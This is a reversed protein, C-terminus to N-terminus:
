LLHVKILSCMIESRSSNLWDESRLKRNRMTQHRCFQTIPRIESMYTAGVWIARQRMWRTIRIGVAVVIIRITFLYITVFLLLLSLSKPFFSHCVFWLTETELTATKFFRVTPPLRGILWSALLALLKLDLVDVLLMRKLYGTDYWTSEYTMSRLLWSLSKNGRAKRHRRKDYHFFRVM